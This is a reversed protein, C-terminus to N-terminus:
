VKCAAEWCDYLNEIENELMQIRSLYTQGIDWCSKCYGERYDGSTYNEHGICRECLDKGCQECRIVSCALDRYIEDGCIDCVTIEKVVQEVLIEEKIM